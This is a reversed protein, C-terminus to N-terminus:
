EDFEFAAGEGENNEFEATKCVVFAGPEPM